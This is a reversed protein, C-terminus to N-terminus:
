SIHSTDRKGGQVHPPLNFFQDCYFIWLTDQASPLLTALMGELTLERNGTVPYYTGPPDSSQAYGASVQCIGTSCARATTWTDRGSGNSMNVKRVCKDIGRIEDRVRVYVNTSEPPFSDLSFVVTDGAYPNQNQEVIVYYHAHLTDEHEVYVNGVTTDIAMRPTGLNLQGQGPSPEVTPPDYQDIYGHPGRRYVTGFQDRWYSLSFFWEETQEDTQIELRVNYPRGSIVQKTRTAQLFTVKPFGEGIAVTVFAKALEIINKDTVKLGNDILLHNFGYPMPYRKNGEIAMLYPHPPSYFDHGRYFRATPFVETLVSSTVEIFGYIDALDNTDNRSSALYSPVMEPFRNLIDMVENGSLRRLSVGAQEVKAPKRGSGAAMSIAAVVLLGALAAGIYKSRRM